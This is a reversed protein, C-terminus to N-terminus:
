KSVNLLVGTEDSYVREITGGRTLISGREHHTLQHPHRTERSKQNETTCKSVVVHVMRDLNAIIRDSREPDAQVEVTIHM